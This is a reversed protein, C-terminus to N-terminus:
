FQKGSSLRKKRRRSPILRDLLTELIGQESIQWFRSVMKRTRRNRLVFSILHAHHYRGLSEIGRFAEACSFAIAYYKWYPLAAPYFKEWPKERAYHLIKGNCAYIDDYPRDDIGIFYNYEEPLICTNITRNQFYINFADQDPFKYKKQSIADFISVKYDCYKQRIVDLDFLIVGSNIYSDSKLGLNKIRQISEDDDHQGIDLAGAAPLADMPTAFIERIDMTCVTDCDLYLVLREQILDPMFLRYLSGPGFLAGVHANVSQPVAPASHIIVEQDYHAALRQFSERAQETLTDDCILHARVPNRTNEFVSTLSVLPHKHYSGSSDTFCFCINLIADKESTM